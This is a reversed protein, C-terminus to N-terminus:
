YIHRFTDAGNLPHVYQVIVVTKLLQDSEPSVPVTMKERMREIEAVAEAAVAIEEPSTATSHEELSGTKVNRGDVRSGSKSGQAAHIQQVKRCVAVFGPRAEMEHTWCEQLVDYMAGPCIAPCALRGKEEIVYQVVQDGKMDKFPKKGHSLIEWSCVGYSWVDGKSTFKSYYM